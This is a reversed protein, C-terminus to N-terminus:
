TTDMPVNQSSIHKEYAINFTEITYDCMKQLDELGQRLIDVARRNTSQIRFNM